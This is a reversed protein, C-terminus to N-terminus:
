FSYGIKPKELHRGGGAPMKSFSTETVKWKQLKIRDLEARFYSNSQSM